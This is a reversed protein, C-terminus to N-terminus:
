AGRTYAFATSTGTANTVTIAASGASGTPMSAVLKTDSIVVFDTANTAGFKVTTAGTFGAGTITVMEGQAAGSPTASGITPASATAAPNAATGPKGQIHIVVNVTSETNQDGGQPQWEVYGFGTKAQGIGSRDYWRVEVLQAPDGPDAEAAAQLAAQGADQAGDYLKDRFSASLSLKKSPIWDSGYGDSDFDSNDAVNPAPNEQFNFMGFATTFVGGTKVDLAYRSAAQSTGPTAPAMPYTM